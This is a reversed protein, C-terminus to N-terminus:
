ICSHASWTLQIHASRFVSRLPGFVSKLRASSHASNLFNLPAHASRSRSTTAVPVSREFDAEGHLWEFYFAWFRNCFDGRFQWHLYDYKTTDLILRIIQCLLMVEIIGRQPKRTINLTPPRTGLYWTLLHSVTFVICKRIKYSVTKNLICHLWM